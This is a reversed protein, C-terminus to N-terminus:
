GGRYASAFSSAASAYSASAGAYATAKAVQGGLRAVKARSRGQRGQWAIDEAFNRKMEKLYTFISGGEAEGATQIGGELEKATIEKRLQAPINLGGKFSFTAKQRAEGAARGSPTSIGGETFAVEGIKAADFRIGSAAINAKALGLTQAQSRRTQEINRETELEIGLAGEEGAAAAQKGAKRQQRGSRIAMAGSFIAAGIAM